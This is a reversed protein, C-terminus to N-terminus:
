IGELTVARSVLYFADVVPLRGRAADYRTPM